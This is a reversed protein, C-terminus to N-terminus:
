ARRRRTGLALLLLPLLGGLAGASGTAACGGSPASTVEVGVKFLAAESWAGQAGQTDTARARWVYTGDALAQPVLFRTGNDGEAVSTGSAVVAGSVSGARLEFEYSLADGEPDRANLVVLVPQREETRSGHAPSIALPAVPAGNASSYRVTQAASWAGSGQGDSARARWWYTADDTLGAGDVSVSTQGPAEEATDATAVQQTLAADAYVAFEYRLAQGEPDRANLVTLTLRAGSVLAGASGLAVPATPVGNAPLYYLERTESWPSGRTADSARTRWWYRTNATLGAGEVVVSTRGSGHEPATLTRVVQDFAPDAALAFEYTLADGEPDRANYVSLTPSATAIRAGELPLLALPATPVGNLPNYHIRQAVSWPGTRAGDSARARWWYATDDTLHDASLAASTQGSAGGPVSVSLVTQTLATDAYVIFEYSLAPSDADTTNAVVLTLGETRVHAGDLPQVAKVTGPVRPGGNADRSEDLNAVGDGDTDEASDDRTTDLGHAREWTDPMGDADGDKWTATVTLQVSASAGDDDSVTVTLPYVAGSGTTQAFGPVWQLLGTSSVSLGEPAGTLQWTLPDELGAPDWARLQLQFVSGEAAVHAPAVAALTPAVNSVVVPLVRPTKSDEDEVWVTAQWTDGHRPNDRYRFVARPDSSLHDVEGDGDFDWHYYRVPEMGPTPSGSRALVNFEVTRPESGAQPAASAREIFPSVDQVDLPVERVASVSGDADVLRVAVTRGGHDAFVHTLSVVGPKAHTQEVDVQFTTGDYALDYQVRWPAAGDGPDEFGSGVTYTEGELVAAPATLAQLQPQVDAIFVTTTQVASAGNDKDVVRMGVTYTGDRPFVHELSIAGQATLSQTHEARFDSGDYDFDWEVKWPSDATGVDSFSSTFLLANGESGQATDPTLTGAVPAVNDVTVVRTRLASTALDRDKVRVAVTYKGSQPFTRSAALPGQATLTQTAEVDFTTGSYNFDFDAVWDADFNGDADSFTTGFDVGGGEPLSAPTATLDGLVPPANVKWLLSSNPLLNKANYSFLTATTTNVQVGATASGGRDYTDTGDRFDVDQYNFLVDASGEKFVVQFTATPYPTDTRRLNHGIARWEIVWERNPTTGLVEHYVNGPPNTATHLSDWFVSVMTDYTTTPLRVNSGTNTKNNSFSLMGEATVYAADFGPHNAFRVPFPASVTVVGNDPINLATGTITRWEPTALVQAPRYVDMVLVSLTEGNPFTLTYSGAAPPQWELTYVGDGAVQDKGQGDDVMNVTTGLPAVTVAVDGAPQACNIHLASLEVKDGRLLQLSPTFPLLRSFVVQNDCTLSGKGGTDAARIRKGSVTLGNMSAVDQGGAIVLNKLARWDRSPEQAKLLGVLGAVHPTAMSTGSLLEYGQGLTTSYIDVGPAGVHVRRRGYSSFSAKADNHDTAAVALINALPYNSPYNATTDNNANNNGAAAVFLIGAEQHKAIADQLAQSFTGGGWSNSTAVIPVPNTPRTRLEYLYDLCKVANATAGSGTATLFKCGILKARWNVGAVGKGNNGRGAITGSCHSGHKNDDLPDGANTIANLGHVDDVYGNGDDDVGNDAIEGPNVWINDALDEHLYNIGTDIVAIVTDDSGTTLEWAEPANIDADAKGGSQGTNHLGWLEELEADDPLAGIRYLANPEAYLVDPSARYAAVAQEVPVGDPLAVLQLGSVARSSYRVSAGLQAHLQPASRTSVEDKFRVLLEGAVVEQGDSTLETRVDGAGLSRVVQRPAPGQAEKKTESCGAAGLALLSVLAGLGARLRSRPHVAQVM